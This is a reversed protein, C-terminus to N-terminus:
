LDIVTQRAKAASSIQSLIFHDPRHVRDHTPKAVRVLDGLQQRQEVLLPLADFFNGPRGDCEAPVHGGDPM